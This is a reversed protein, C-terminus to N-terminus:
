ALRARLATSHLVDANVVSAPKNGNMPDVITQASALSVREGTERGFSSQHPSLLVNPTARLPHAVPLPEEAFVDLAAGAIVGEHLARVLAVEDVLPGRATNILFATRKMRRLQAEGILGRSITQGAEGFGIFAIRNTM